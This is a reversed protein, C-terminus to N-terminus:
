VSRHSTLRLMLGLQRALDNEVGHSTVVRRVHLDIAGESRRAVEVDANNKDALGVLNLGLQTPAAPATVAIAADLQNFSSFNNRHIIGDGSGDSPLFLTRQPDTRLEDHVTT